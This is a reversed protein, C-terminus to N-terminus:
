RAGSEHKTPLRLLLEIRTSWDMSRSCGLNSLHPSTSKYRIRDFARTGRLKDTVDALYATSFLNYGNLERNKAILLEEGTYRFLRRYFAISDNFSFSQSVCGIDLFVGFVRNLESAWLNQSTRQSGHAQVTSLISLLTEVPRVYNSHSHVSEWGPTFLNADFFVEVNKDSSRSTLNNEPDTDRALKWSLTEM